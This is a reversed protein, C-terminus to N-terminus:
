LNASIFAIRMPREGYIKANKQIKEAKKEAKREEQRGTRIQIEEEKRSRGKRNTDRRNAALAPFQV